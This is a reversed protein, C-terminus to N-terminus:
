RTEHFSRSYYPREHKQVFLETNQLALSHLLKEQDSQFGILLMLQGHWLGNPFKYRVSIDACSQANDNTLQALVNGANAKRGSYAWIDHSELFADLRSKAYDDDIKVSTLGNSQYQRTHEIVPLMHLRYFRMVIIEDTAMERLKITVDHDEFCEHNNWIADIIVRLEKAYNKYSAPAM